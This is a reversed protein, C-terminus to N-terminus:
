LIRNLKEIYACSADNCVACKAERAV